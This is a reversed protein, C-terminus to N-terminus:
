KTSDRAEPYGSLKVCIYCPSIDCVASQSRAQKVSNFYHHSRHGWVTHLFYPICKALHPGTPKSVAEKRSPFICSVTRHPLLQGGSNDEHAMRSFMTVVLRHRKSDAM